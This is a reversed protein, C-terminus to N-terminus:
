MDYPGTNVQLDKNATVKVSGHERRDETQVMDLDLNKAEYAKNYM